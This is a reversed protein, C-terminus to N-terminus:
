IDGLQVVSWFAWVPYFDNARKRTIVSFTRGEEKQQLLRLAEDPVLDAPPLEAPLSVRVADGNQHQELYPGYRGIRVRADLDDLALAYIERPDITQAKENVQTKLASDGLYFTRLYPLWMAGGEAIDDLTQEM